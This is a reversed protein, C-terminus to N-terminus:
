KELLNSPNAALLPVLPAGVRVFLKSAVFRISWTEDGADDPRMSKLIKGGALNVGSDVVEGKANLLEVSSEEQPAGAAEVQIEKVGKPARFYLRGSCGFIKLTDGALAGGPADTEVVITQTNGDAEFRYVGHEAANLTYAVTGGYPLKIRDVVVLTPSSVTVRLPERYYSHVPSNTFKMKIKDGPKAFLLYDFKGRYRIGAGAAAGKANVPKLEKPNVPATKFARAEPSPASERLFKGGDFATEKGQSDRVKVGRVVAEALANGYRSFFQVPPRAADDIVTLGDIKIGFLDEPYASSIRFAALSSQRNDIVCDEFVIPLNSARHETIGVSGDRSGGIECGIFEIKGPAAPTGAGTSLIMVGVDNGRIRCNRFTISLPTSTANLMHFSLCVGALFNGDFDCDEVVCGSLSGTPYNPEFDLGCQPPTGKTNNFKCGKMHLGEVRGTVSIGQRHHDECVLNELAIDACNGSIYVGDGGSAKLTLNRAQVNKCDFIRLAHRHESPEYQTPDQYDARNMVLLVKGEGRLTVNERGVLEFLCDGKKKFEGKKARVVVGDAFVVEQDSALKLPGVVWDSGVNDVLLKRVGSDIASQLCKTADDKDYGWWSAKAEDRTGAKVEALGAAPSPETACSTLLAAAACAVVFVLCNGM